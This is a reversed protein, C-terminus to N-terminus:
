NPLKRKGRSRSTNFLGVLRYGYEFNHKVHNIGHTLHPQFTGDLINEVYFPVKKVSIQSHRIQKETLPRGLESEIETKFDKLSIFKSYELIKNYNNCLDFLKQIDNEPLSLLSNRVKSPDRKVIQSLRYVMEDTVSELISTNGPDTQHLNNKRPSYVRHFDLQRKPSQHYHQKEKQEDSELVDNNCFELSKLPYSYKGDIISMKKINYYTKLQFSSVKKGYVDAKFFLVSMVDVFLSPIQIRVDKDYKEYNTIIDNCLDLILSDSSIFNISSSYKKTKVLHDKIFNYSIVFYDYLENKTLEIANKHVVFSITKLLIILSDEMFTEPFLSRFNKMIAILEDDSYGLTDLWKIGLSKYSKKYLDDFDANSYVNM